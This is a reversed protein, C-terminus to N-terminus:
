FSRAGEEFGHLLVESDSETTFTHGKEILEDRLARYNYIEGNVTLVLSKDENYLPQDGTKLDIISLRRFGIAISDRQGEGSIHYGESDPGRHAIRRTMARLVEERNEIQGTFGCFGCM